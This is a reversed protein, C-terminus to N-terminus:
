RLKVVLDFGAQEEMLYSVFPFRILSQEGMDIIELEHSEGSARSVLRASQPRLGAGLVLDYTASQFMMRAIREFPENNTAGSEDENEAAESQADAPADPSPEAASDNQPGGLEARTEDSFRFTLTRAGADYHPVIAGMKDEEGAQPVAALTNLGPLTFDLAMGRVPGDEIQRGQIEVDQGLRSRVQAQMESLSEQMRDGSNEPTAQQQQQELNAPVTLRWHVRLRGDADTRIVHLINICSSFTALMALAAFSTSVRRLLNPNM